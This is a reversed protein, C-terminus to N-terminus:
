TICSHRFNHAQNRTFRHLHDIPIWKVIEKLVLKHITFAPNVCVTTIIWRHKYVVKNLKIEEEKETM